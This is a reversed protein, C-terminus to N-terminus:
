IYHINWRSILRYKIVETQFSDENSLTEQCYNFTPYSYNLQTLAKNLNNTSVASTIGSADYGAIDEYIQYLETAGENSWISIQIEAVSGVLENDKGGGVKAISIAPFTPNQVQMVYESFIRATQKNSLSGGLLTLNTTSLNNIIAQRVAIKVVNEYM